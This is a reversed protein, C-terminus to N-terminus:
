AYSVIINEHSIELEKEVFKEIKELFFGKKEEKNVKEKGVVVKDVKKVKKKM